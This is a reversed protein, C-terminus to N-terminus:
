TIELIGGARVGPGLVDKEGAPNGEADSQTFIVGPESTRAVEALEKM